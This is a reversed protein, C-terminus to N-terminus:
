YRRRLFFADKTDNMRCFFILDVSFFTMETAAQKCLGVCVEQIMCFTRMTFKVGSWEGRGLEPAEWRGNRLKGM